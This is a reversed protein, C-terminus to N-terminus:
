APQNQLSDPRSILKWLSVAHCFFVIPVVVTPLWIFPFYTVGVNPQDFGVMQLRSPFALIAITVITALLALAAINWAILLTRNVQGNRFALFYVIPATIGSLIDFNRGEFTMDYPVLGNQALWLLVFEVPIRLVHILTLISLPLVELFGRRFFILYVFTLLLFPMVGFAFVQPPLSEFNRYFSTSGLAAHILIWISVFGILVRAPVSNLGAHSVAFIFVGVTSLTTLVFVVPIYAPLGEIM